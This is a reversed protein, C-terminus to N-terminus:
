KLHKSKSIQCNPCFYMKTGAAPKADIPTGCVPCPVNYVASTMRLVDNRAEIANGFIDTYNCIRFGSKYEDIITVTTDYITRIEDEILARTKTLPHVKSLLLIYNMIPNEIRFAGKATSCCEVINVNPKDSLWERFRDFTFDEPDAVDIPSKPIFPYRKSKGTCQTDIQELDVEFTKIITGWGYFNAGFSSGDDLTILLHYGHSVSKKAKPIHAPEGKSFYRLGGDMSSFFVLMGCDTLINSADTFLIKSNVINALGPIKDGHWSYKGNYYQDWSVHVIKKGNLATALQKEIFLSRPCLPLYNILDHEPM